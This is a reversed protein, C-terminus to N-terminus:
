VNSKVEFFRKLYAVQFVANAVVFLIQAISWWKVRDNTSEATNRHTRERVRLYETEHSVDEITRKLLKLQGELTNYQETRLESGWVHDVHFTVDKSADSSYENSFCYEYRGAQAIPIDPNADPVRNLNFVRDKRPGLVYFDVSLQESSEPDRTGVQFNINLKDQVKADLFYCIKGKAPIIENHASAFATLSALATLASAVKM